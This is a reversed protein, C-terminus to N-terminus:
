AVNAYTGKVMDIVQNRMWIHAPDNHRREHWIMSLNVSAIALPLELIEVPESTVIRLALRRPLSLIMDSEAVLRPAVLFYPLRVAIRRTLGHQALAVDVLNKGQGTIIVLIHSLTVFNELTLGADIVPHGRRVICVMDEDYLSRQHFTAPLEEYAGIALDAGGQVILEINSGLPPPIELDLGPALRILRNILAPMLLLAMHDITAITFRGTASAPDFVAPAVIARADELLRTVPEALAVARPTLELGNATRVLLRDNLLRRLRALARSAAPQSLGLRLGARTVSREKLLADFLKLLNLDVHSFDVQHM